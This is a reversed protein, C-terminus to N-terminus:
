YELEDLTLSFAPIYHQMFYDAEPLCLADIKAKTQEAALRFECNGTKLEELCKIYASIKDAAKIIGELEGYEGALLPAYAPRMEKTLKATLRLAANKEIREYAASIEPNNHKVPTPMDGTIIESADHFLAAAAAAGPDTPINFVDRRIVALAHAIVAVMHSHEQVNERDSNRMLAWRDINKM